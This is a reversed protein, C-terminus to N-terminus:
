ETRTVAGPGNRSGGGHLPHGVVRDVAWQAHDGTIGAWERAARDAAANGDRHAGHVPRGSPDGVVHLPRKRLERQKALCLLGGRGSARSMRLRSIGTNSAEASQVARGATALSGAASAYSAM